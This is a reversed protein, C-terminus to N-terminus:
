LPATNDLVSVRVKRGSRPSQVDSQGTGRRPRAKLYDIALRRFKVWRDLLNEAFVKALRGHCRGM